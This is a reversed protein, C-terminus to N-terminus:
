ASWRKVMDDVIADLKMAAELLKAIQKEDRDVRIVVLRYKEALPDEYEYYPEYYVAYDCWARGTCALQAQMQAMYKSDVEHTDLVELHTDITPCKFEVLGDDGVLGDPSAGFFPMEPHQIFGVLEVTLLNQLEYKERATPELDVGKEMANNRAHQKALGHIREWALDRAYKMCAASPKDKLISLVDFAHSATVKGTRAAYWEATRQEM